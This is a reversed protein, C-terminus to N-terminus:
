APIREYDVETETAAVTPNRFEVEDQTLAMFAEELSPHQPTLEYLVLGNEAAASGIQDAGLGEVELTGPAASSVRVDPGLVLERLASAEPSRVFVVNKSAERVFDAVSVDRILRGRGIIILHEATLAMESM